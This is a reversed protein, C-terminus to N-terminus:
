AVGYRFASAPSIWVGNLIIVTTRLESSKNGVTRVCVLPSINGPGPVQKHPVEAGGPGAGYTSGLLSYTPEMIFRRLTAPSYQTAPATIAAAMDPQVAPGPGPAGVPVAAGGDGAVAPYWPIVEPVTSVTRMLMWVPGVGLTHTMSRWAACAYTIAGMMSGLLVAVDEVPGDRGRVAVWIAPKRAASSAAPTHVHASQAVLFRAYPGAPLAVTSNVPAPRVTVMSRPRGLAQLVSPDHRMM